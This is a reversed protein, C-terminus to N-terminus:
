ESEEKRGIRKALEITDGLVGAATVQPGAGPGSVVLPYSAYRETHFSVANEPGQLAGLASEKEVEEVGVAGGNPGVRAVYRLVRERSRAAEVRHAYDEDLTVAASFFGDVSLTAFEPPYFPEVTIDGEDIPWGATRALILAKRVVDQGSLDERPDPETYGLARAQALAVSYPTGRMLQTCLYALTGSLVGEISTIRDGTALLTRLTSIIPLGAGVTAEYRLLPHAFLSEAEAWPGALPLKNALVIGCRAALAEKLLSVTKASATADILLTGPQLY